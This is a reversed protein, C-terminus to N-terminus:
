AALRTSATPSPRRSSLELVGALAQRSACVMCRPQEVAALSAAELTKLTSHIAAFVAEEYDSDPWREACHLRYHEMKIWQEIRKYEQKLPQV